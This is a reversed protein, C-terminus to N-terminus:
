YAAVFARRRALRCVTQLMHAHWLRRVQITTLGGQMVWCKARGSCLSRCFSLMNPEMHMVPAVCTNAPSPSRVSVCFRLTTIFYFSTLHIRVRDYAIEDLYIGDASYDKMIQKIGAM